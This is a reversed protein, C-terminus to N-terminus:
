WYRPQGHITELDSLALEREKDEAIHEAAALAQDAYERARGAGGRRENGRSGPL